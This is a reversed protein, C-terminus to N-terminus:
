KETELFQLLPSTRALVDGRHRDIWIIRVYNGEATVHDVMGKCATGGYVRDGVKLAKAQDYTM